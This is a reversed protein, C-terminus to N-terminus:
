AMQALGAVMTFTQIWHGKIESILALSIEISFSFWICPLSVPMQMVRVGGTTDDRTRYMADYYECLGM